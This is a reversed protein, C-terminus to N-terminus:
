EIRLAPGIKGDKSPNPAQVIILRIKKNEWDKEKEGFKEIMKDFNTANLGLPMDVGKLRLCPRTGLRTTIEEFKDVTFLQGSKVDEAKLFSGSQFYKERDPM